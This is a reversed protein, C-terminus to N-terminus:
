ALRTQQTRQGCTTELSVRQGTHCVEAIVILLADTQKKDPQHQHHHREESTKVTYGVGRCMM